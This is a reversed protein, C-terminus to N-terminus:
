FFSFILLFNSLILPIINSSYVSSSFFYHIHLLPWPIPVVSPPIVYILNPLLCLILYALLLFFPSSCLQFFVHLFFDLMHLSFFSPTCCFFINLSLFIHRLFAFFFCFLTSLTLSPFSPCTNSLFPPIVLFFFYRPSPSFHPFLFLFLPYRSFFFLLSCVLQSKIFILSTHSSFIHFVQLFLFLLIFYIFPYHFYLLSFSINFYHDLLTVPFSCLCAFSPFITSCLSASPFLM